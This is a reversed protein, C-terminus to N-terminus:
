IWGSNTRSRSLLLAAWFAFSDFGRCRLLTPASRELGSVLTFNLLPDLLGAQLTDRTNNRRQRISSDSDAPCLPRIAEQEEFHSEKYPLVRFTGKMGDRNFDSTVCLRMLLNSDGQFAQRGLQPAIERLPPLDPKRQRAFALNGIFPRHM